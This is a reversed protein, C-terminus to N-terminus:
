CPSAGTITTAYYAPGRVHEHALPLLLPAPAEDAPLRDLGAVLISKVSRYRPAGVAFVRTM